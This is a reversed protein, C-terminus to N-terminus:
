VGVHLALDRQGIPRGPPPASRWAGDQPRLQPQPGAAGASRTRWDRDDGHHRHHRHALQRYRPRRRAHGEGGLHDTMEVELGILVLGTLLSNEGTLEVREARARAVREAAWYRM